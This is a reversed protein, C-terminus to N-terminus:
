GMQGVQRDALKTQPMSMTSIPRNYIAPQSPCGQHPARSFTHATLPELSHLSPYRPSHKRIIYRRSLSMCSRREAVPLCATPRVGMYDVDTVDQGTFRPTSTEDYRCRALHGLDAAAWHRSRNKCKWRVGDGHVPDRQAAAYSGNSASSVAESALHPPLDLEAVLHLTSSPHM